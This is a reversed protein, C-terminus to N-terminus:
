ADGVADANRRVRLWPRARVARGILPDDRFREYFEALDDDVGVAFRMRAIGERAVAESAARAAFVSGSVAVVVPSDDVHLLRVLGDGRRRTLGDLSPPGLRFTWRPRM